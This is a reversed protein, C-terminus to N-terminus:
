NADELAYKFNVSSYLSKYILINFYAATAAIIM